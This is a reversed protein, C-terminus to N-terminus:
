LLKRCDLANTFWQEQRFTHLTAPNFGTPVPTPYAAVVAPLLLQTPKAIEADIWRSYANTVDGLGILRSADADTAGFTTQNLFRFAEVKGVPAPPPAVSQPPTSSGGGGGGGCAALLGLFGACLVRCASRRTSKM